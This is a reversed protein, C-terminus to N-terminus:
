AESIDTVAEEWSRTQRMDEKRAKVHKKAAEVDTQERRLAPRRGVRSESSRKASENANHMECKLMQVIFMSPLNLRRSKSGCRVTVSQMAWENHESDACLEATSVADAYDDDNLVVEQGAMIAAKQAEWRAVEKLLNGDGDGGNKIDDAIRNVMQEIALAPLQVLKSENACILRVTKIDGFQDMMRACVEAAYEKEGV